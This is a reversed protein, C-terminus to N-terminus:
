KTGKKGCSAGAKPACCGGTKAPKPQCCAMLKAQAEPDAALDDAQYGASSIVQRLTSENVKKRNFKVTVRQTELDLVATKVGDLDALQKEITAKCMGCQANTQIVVEKPPAAMALFAFAFLLIPLFRM